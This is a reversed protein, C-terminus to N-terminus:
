FFVDSKLYLKTLDEGIKNDFVKIIEKTREKEEVVPCTNKLNSFFKEKKLDNVAKKYHDINNFYEYPSALKKNLFQM